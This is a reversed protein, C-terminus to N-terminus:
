LAVRNFYAADKIFYVAASFYPYLSMYVWISSKVFPVKQESANLKFPYDPFNETEQSSRRYKNIYDRSIAVGTKFRAIFSSNASPPSKPAQRIWKVANRLKAISLAM